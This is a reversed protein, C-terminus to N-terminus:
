RSCALAAFPAVATADLSPAAAAGQRRPDGVGVMTGDVPDVLIANVGGFATMDLASMPYRGREQPAFGRAQLADAVADTVPDVIEVYVTPDAKGGWLVRPAAMAECLPLHRDVVATVTDVIMPAIRASGGSGLVLFPAGDRLLITPAISNMPSKLPEAFSWARRDEFEFGNLLSNYPFGLGPTAVTAGFTAGLTQTLSVANGQADVVSVQTTGGLFLRSVAATEVESELLARDFRILAARRRVHEPDAALTDPPRLPRRAPFSDAFALRSAEVLVHLGDVSGGGVLEPPFRDLISLAEVVTSGGGPSPFSVVDLGRYRGRVPAVERAEMLGLDAGRVWGDHLAMDVEIARAIDGHYFDAAGRTALKQLVCALDPNCYVHHEDWLGIGDELFLDALYPSRVIKPRYYALFAYEAPSLAEGLTAIGIAPALVEALPKTGYRELALALAAVTGPTAVSQYGIFGMREMNTDRLHQMQEPAFHLPARASGDIALDRGGALHIVIFTLGGLGSSGPEAAGLAFAAAVAADIANGGTALMLAGAASASPAGTVIMGSHSAAERSWLLDPLAHQVPPGPPTAALPAGAEPPATSCAVVLWALLCTLSRQVGKIV